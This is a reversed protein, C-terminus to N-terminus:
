FNLRKMYTLIDNHLKNGEIVIKDEIILYLELQELNSMRYLLPLISKHYFYTENKSTLSFCKM